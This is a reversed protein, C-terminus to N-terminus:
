LEYHIRRTVYPILISIISFFTCMSITIYIDYMHLSYTILYSGCLIISITKKLITHKIRQRTTFHNVSITQKNCHIIIAGIIIILSWIKDNIYSYNHLGLIMLLYYGYSLIACKTRSSAHFGGCVSRIPIMIIFNLLGLLPYGFSLGLLSTITFYVMLELMYDICYRYADSDAESIEGTSVLNTTINTAILNSIIM